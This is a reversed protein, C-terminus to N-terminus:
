AGGREPAARRLLQEGAAARAQESRRDRAAAASRLAVIAKDHRHQEASLAPSRRELGRRDDARADRDGGRPAALADREAALRARSAGQDRAENRPHRPREDRSGGTVVHPGRFVDGHLTGVPLRTAGSARAGASRVLRAILAEGITARFRPAFPGSVNVVSSLPVLATARAPVPRLVLGGLVPLRRSASTILFGCRGAASDRVLQLGAAAYEPREVIVHQLLDGLCAEVAREYGAAVELYDAVAGQQSVKGNAQALVM